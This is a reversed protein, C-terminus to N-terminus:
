CRPLRANVVGCVASGWIGFVCVGRKRVSLNRVRIQGGGGQVQTEEDLSALVPTNDFTGRLLFAAIRGRLDPPLEAFVTSDDAEPPCFIVSSNRISRVCPRRRKEFTPLLCGRERTMSMFLEELM